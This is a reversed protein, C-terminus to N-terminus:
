TVLSRAARNPVYGLAAIAANVADRAEPSVRESGNVVRSVTARSVGALEAVAELTPARRPRTAAAEPDQTM